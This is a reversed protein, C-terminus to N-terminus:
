RPLRNGAGSFDFDFSKSEVAGGTYDVRVTAKGSMGTVVNNGDMYREFGSGNEKAVVPIIQFRDSKDADVHLSLQVKVERETPAILVSRKESVLISYGQQLM